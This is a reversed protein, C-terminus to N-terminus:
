DTQHSYREFFKVRRAQRGVRLEGRGEMEASCRKARILEAFRPDGKVAQLRQMKSPDAAFKRVLKQLWTHSIGLDRAWARGSSRTGRCTVWLFVFRQIM